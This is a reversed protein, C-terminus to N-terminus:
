KDADKEPADGNIFYVVKDLKDNLAKMGKKSLLLDIKDNLSQDIKDNLAQIDANLGLMLMELQKDRKTMRKDMLCIKHDVNWLDEQSAATISAKSQGVPTPNYNNVYQNIWFIIKEASRCGEIAIPSGGYFALHTLANMSAKAETKIDDLLKNIRTPEPAYPAEKPTPEPRSIATQVMVARPEQPTKM